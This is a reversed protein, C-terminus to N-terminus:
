IESSTRFPFMVSSLSYSITALFPINFNTLHFFCLLFPDLGKETVFDQDATGLRFVYLRESLQHFKYGSQCTNQAM